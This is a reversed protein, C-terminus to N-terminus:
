LTEKFAAYTAKLGEQMSTEPKWGLRLVKTNDTLKQMTGDPKNHDYIIDGTYGVVDKIKSVLEKITIDFGASLNIYNQMPKVLDDYDKKDANMVTICAEAMDEAYLFERRANGTGWITVTPSNNIKAEHMKRLIGATVHGNDLDYNDGPGYLNCPLVSRFDTAYQRNYADCMKIGAIKAVAYAENTPELPGTMLYEEKIPLKTRKPYICASGINIVKKKNNLLLLAFDALDRVDIFEWETTIADGPAMMTGQLRDLMGIRFPWWTFRDTLDYPGVILGPRLILADPIVKLLTQECLVKLAGYNEGHITETEPNDTTCLEGYEDNSISIDAFVSLTSIFCYQINKNAFYQASINITKPFYGCTDIVADFHMGDLIEFGDNRDGHIITIDQHQFHPNSKGRNFVTLTHGSKLASDIMAKGLFVSGGIILIHM